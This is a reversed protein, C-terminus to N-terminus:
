FEMEVYSKDVKGGLQPSIKEIRVKGSKLNPYVDKLKSIIDYVVTELLKQKIIMVEKIINYISEYNVTNSLDDSANYFSDFSVEADVLFNNGSAQEPEYYGHYAYFDAGKVGVKTIM